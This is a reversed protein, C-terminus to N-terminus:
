WLKTDGPKREEFEIVANSKYHIAMHTDHSCTILNDSNLLIEEDWNEIDSEEIPIM